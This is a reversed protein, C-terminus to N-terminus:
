IVLRISYVMGIIYTNEYQCASYHELAIGEHLIIVIAADVSFTYRGELM